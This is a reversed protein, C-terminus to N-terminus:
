NQAPEDEIIEENPVNATLLSSPVRIFVSKKAPSRLRSADFTDGCFTTARRARVKGFVCIDKGCRM